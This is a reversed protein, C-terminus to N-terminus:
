ESDRVVKEKEIRRLKSFVFAAMQEKLEPKVVNLEDPIHEIVRMLLKFVYRCFHVQSRLVKSFNKM